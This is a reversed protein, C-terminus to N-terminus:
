RSLIVEVYRVAYEDICYRLEEIDYETDELTVIGLHNMLDIEQYSFFTESYPNETLHIEEGNFVFRVRVINFDEEFYVLAHNKDILKIDTVRYCRRAGDSEGNTNMLKDLEYYLGGEPNEFEIVKVMNCIKSM